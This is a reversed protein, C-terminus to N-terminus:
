RAPSRNQPPGIEKKTDIVCSFSNARHPDPMFFASLGNAASEATERNVLFVGPDTLACPARLRCMLLLSSLSNKGGVEGDVSNRPSEDFM